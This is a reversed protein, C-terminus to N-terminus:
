MKRWIISAIDSATRAVGPATSSSTSGPAEVLRVTNVKTPSGAETTCAASLAALTAKVSMSMLFCVPSCGLCSVWVSIYLYIDSIKVFLKFFIKM